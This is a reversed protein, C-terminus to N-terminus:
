RPIVAILRSIVGGYTVVDQGMGTVVAGAEVGPQSFQLHDHNGDYPPPDGSEQSIDPLQFGDTVLADSLDEHFRSRYTQDSNQRALVEKEGVFTM